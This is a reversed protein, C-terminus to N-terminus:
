IVEAMKRRLRLWDQAEKYNPIVKAVRTWFKASHDKYSSLESELAEQLVDGFMEKLVRQLDDTTKINEKQTLHRLQKKSFLRKREKEAM